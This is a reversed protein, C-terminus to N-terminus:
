IEYAVSNVINKKLSLKFGKAYTDVTLKDQQNKAHGVTEQVVSIKDPNANVAKEMFKARFTHFSKTSNEDIVKYLRRNLQKQVANITKGKLLPFNMKLVNDLINEHIPVKRIGSKTKAELIDFFYIGEEERIDNNTLNHIDEQRMGSYMAILFFNEIAPENYEYALINKIDEDTFNEKDPDEEKLTELGQINNEPILKRKVAYELFNNIYNMHANITINKIGQNKALFERFDEYDDMTIAAVEKKRFYEKLKNFTASYAKYTSKNVKELKKKSEVFKFELDTFNLYKGFDKKAQTEVRSNVALYLRKKEEISEQSEKALKLYKEFEDPTDYEFVFEYDETKMKFLDDGEILDILRKRYQAVKLSKTRLSIRFLKQKHRRRYYFTQNVKYLRLATDCNKAM